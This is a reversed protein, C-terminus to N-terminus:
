RRGGFTGAGRDMFGGVDYTLNCPAGSSPTLLPAAITVDLTHTLVPKRKVTSVAVTVGGSEGVFRRGSAALGSPISVAGVTADGSSVRLIAPRTFDPTIGVPVEIVARVRVTAGAVKGAVRKTVPRLAFADLDPAPTARGGLRLVLASGALLQDSSAMGVLAFSGDAGLPSGEVVMGNAEALGTTLTVRVNASESGLTVALPVAEAVLQGNSRMGADFLSRFALMGTMSGTLARAPLMGAALQAVNGGTDFLIRFTDGGGPPAAEAHGGSAPADVTITEFVGDSPPIPADHARASAFASLVLLLSLLRRM